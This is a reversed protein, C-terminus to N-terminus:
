LRLHQALSPIWADSSFPLRNNIRSGILVAVSGREEMWSEKM